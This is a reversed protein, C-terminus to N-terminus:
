ARWSSLNAEAGARAVVSFSRISRDGAPPPLRLSAEFRGARTPASGRITYRRGSEGFRVTLGVGAPHLARGAVRVRGQRIRASTVRIAAPSAPESKPPPSVPESTPPKAPAVAPPRGSDELVLMRPSDSVPMEIVARDESRSLVRVPVHEDTLPDYASAEVDEGSLNAVTLRYPAPPLEVSVDRTMVYVSSVFRNDAVQFPLFALVDRNYLPPRGPTGGGGFQHQDHDDAVRALSLERRAQLPEQSEFQAMMRAMAAMTPGASAAGPYGGGRRDVEDFFAPAIMDLAEGRAAYFYLARVGKNIFATTARLTAKARLNAAVADSLGLGSFNSGTETVWVEPPPAGSPHTQRGHSTGYLNTTIPSIDRVLHETQLASLYHEPFFANYAPVDEHWSDSGVAIGNLNGNADLPRSGSHAARPMRMMGQYPHKDIATLGVPSTSGAEWPRQNAFGDGIGVGELGRSPSRIFSVTRELIERETDGAGFSPSPQYYASADLFDSGFGLENWVEVDFETGGLIERTRRTVVDVYSLWGALTQEFAPNAKGDALRPREFPRYALVSAPHNGAALPGPLPKSLTVTGDEQVGTFLIAASKFEDAADLGTRGPVIAQATATDVRITTAGQSASAVTRATFSRLPAPIGHHSNLLILPRIGYQRLASLRTTVSADNWLRGRNNFDISDWGIEIRARRFGSESLLRATAYAHQPEVNFNIGVADRLEEAPVTDLYARWPQLWHSRDGFELATQQRPDIPTELTGASAPKALTLGGVVITGVLVTATAASLIPRRGM